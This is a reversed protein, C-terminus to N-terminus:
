LPGLDHSSAAKSTREQEYAATHFGKAKLTKQPDIQARCTERHVPNSM